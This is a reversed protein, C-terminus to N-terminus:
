PQNPLEPYPPSAFSLRAVSATTFLPTKADEDAHIPKVVCAPGTACEDEPLFLVDAAIWFVSGGSGNGNGGPPEFTVPADYGLPGLEASLAGDCYVRVLPHVDYSQGHNSWYNVAIRTWADRPPFDINVNEANCFEDDSPDTVTPDCLFNDIDLRPNHCGLGLAQWEDGNGKPGFYCTNGEFTPAVWWSVPDPPMDTTSFWQPRSQSPSAPDFDDATCNSWACDHPNGTTGGWPNTDGPQHVHLDLDVTESGLGEEFEWSLEVRLGPAGVFLPFTCEETANNAITKQYTVTYEGSVVPQYQNGTAVPCPSVGPPCAVDYTELVANDGFTGIGESLDAVVFPPSSIPHCGVVGGSFCMETAHVGGVCAGWTGLETCKQTGAFCGPDNLFVPDGKFCSQAAGTHCMCGEDVQGDCDDDLGAYIGDCLEKNGCGSGCPNQPVGGEGGAGGAGGVLFNGGIGGGEGGGSGATGGGGGAPCATLALALAVTLAGQTSSTAEMAGLKCRADPNDSATKASIYGAPM